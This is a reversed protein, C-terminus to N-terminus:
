FKCLDLKHDTKSGQIKWTQKKYNCIYGNDFGQHYLIFLTKDLEVM